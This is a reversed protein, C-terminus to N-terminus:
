GVKSDQCRDQDTAYFCLDQSGKQMGLEHRQILDVRDHGFTYLGTVCNRDDNFHITSVTVDKATALIFSRSRALSISLEGRNFRSASRRLLKKAGRDADATAPRRSLARAPHARPRPSHGCLGPLNVGAEAFRSLLSSADYPRNPVTEYFYSVAQVTAIM